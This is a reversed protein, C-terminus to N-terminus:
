RRECHNMAMINNQIKELEKVLNLSEEFLGQAEYHKIKKM